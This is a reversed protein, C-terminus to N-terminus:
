FWKTTLNAKESTKNGIIKISHNLWNPRKLTNKDCLM